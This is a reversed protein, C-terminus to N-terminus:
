NKKYKIKVQDIYIDLEKILDIIIYIIPIWILFWLLWFIKESIILAIFTISIPFELYSWVIRPNLVYVEFTTSFMIMIATLLWANFWWTIYAIFILPISSIWMWLIPIFSCIFFIIAITLIYPFGWYILGILYFSTVTITTTIVAISAQAKFILGFWKWIKKFIYKYINYIFSFNWVKIKKFFLLIRKKDFIIMFSLFIALIFQIIYSWISQIQRIYAILTDLDTNLVFTKITWKINFDIDNIVKLWSVLSDVEKSIPPIIKLVEKLEKIFLPILDLIAYSLLFLFLTYILVIILKFSFINKLIITFNNVHKWLIFDIKNKLFIALHNFLFSFLFIWLILVLFNRLLYTIAILLLVAFSTQFLSRTFVVKFIKPIYMKNYKNILIKLFM